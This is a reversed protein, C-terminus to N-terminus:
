VNAPKMSAVSLARSCLFRQQKLNPLTVLDASTLALYPSVQNQPLDQVESLQEEGGVTVACDCEEFIEEYTPLFKVGLPQFDSMLEDHVIVCAGASILIKAIKIGCLIAKRKDTNPIVAIKM